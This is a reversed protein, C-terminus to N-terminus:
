AHLMYMVTMGMIDEGELLRVVPVVPGPEAFSIVVACLAGVSDFTKAAHAEIFLVRRLFGDM